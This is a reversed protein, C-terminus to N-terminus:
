SAKESFDKEKFLKTRIRKGKAYVKEGLIGKSSVDYEEMRLLTLTEEFCALCILVSFAAIVWFNIERTIFFIPVLFYVGAFVYRNFFTHMMNWENFRIHTVLVNALKYVVGISIAALCPIVDIELKALFFMCILGAGFLASDGWADLKSGLSSVAGFRRALKGDFFDTAGIVLYVAVFLWRQDPKSLFLLGLSLFIRLVSLANPIHKMPKWNELREM